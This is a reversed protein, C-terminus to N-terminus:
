LDLYVAKRPAARPRARAAAETPGGVRIGGMSAGVACGVLCDLWHNDLHKGALTWVNVTRGRGQTPVCTEATLHEALLRHEAASTGFLALAGAEALDMALREHVFTKWYNVDPRVHRLESTGKVTPMWWYHGVREGPRRRYESMARQAPGVPQGHSPLLVGGVRWCVTEVVDRKWGRDILLRELHMPAGDERKWERALLAGACAEVAERLAEEPALNQHRRRITAPADALTFYWRGGQDPYTGYDVIWGSFDDAWGCVMWYLLRDHLDIFGTVHEARRPVVGRPHGALQRGIREVTVM